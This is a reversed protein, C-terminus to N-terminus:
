WPLVEGNWRLYKGSDEITASTIVNLMGSVSESPELDATPGGMDTKVWGPCIAITTINTYEVRQKRVLMNLAAKSMSYSTYNPGFFSAREKSGCVSSIQLIKRTRSKQVLPVYLQSILAPGAVNTRVISLLTEPDFTSPIDNTTIGANNVLYDLGTDGLIAEVAKVSARISDFDSVDLEIIHLTGQATDRLGQLATAKEPTRCAAIISNTPTALLQRVIELGIGRSAGTVFWTTTSSTSSM